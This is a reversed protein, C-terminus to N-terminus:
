QEQRERQRTPPFPYTGMTGQQSKFKFRTPIYTSCPVWLQINMRYVHLMYMDVRHAQKSVYKQINTNFQFAKILQLAPVFPELHINTLAFGLKSNLALSLGWVVVM